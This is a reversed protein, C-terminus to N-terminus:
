QWVGQSVVYCYLQLCVHSLVNHRLVPEHRLRFSMRVSVLVEFPMCVSGRSENVYMGYDVIEMQIGVTFTESALM